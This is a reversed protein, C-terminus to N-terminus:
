KELSPMRRSHLNNMAKELRGEVIRPFEQVANAIAQEIARQEHLPARTLVYGVVDENGGPHGIGFRLRLFGPTGLHRITDRLGNHGGHGGTRKLRVAGPPLDLDDHAVLIVPPLIKYYYAMRVISQGSHNMYTMPKLVWIDQGMVQIRCVDGNFKSDYRFDGGYEHALADALWFGANHRTQVYQFGPNGLGM